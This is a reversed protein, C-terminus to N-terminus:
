LQNDLFNQITIEPHIYIQALEYNNKISELKSAYLEPTLGSLISGIEDPDDFFIIGNSDFYESVEKTGLYIPIVGTLFCDIIKETFYTSEISNEIVIQYRYDRLSEIKYEIERSCGTGFFDITNAEKFNEWIRHRLRHYSNWNKHSFIMSVSKNKQWLSMDENRLWTGGHPIFVFNSIKSELNKIYSFVFKFKDGVLPIDRYNEGNIIPPEIIWACNNKKPDINDAFCKRDTYIAIDYDDGERIWNTGPDIYRSLGKQTGLNEDILKIKNKM